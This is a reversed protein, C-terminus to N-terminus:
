QYSVVPRHTLLIQRRAAKLYILFLVGERETLRKMEDGIAFGIIHSHRKWIKRGVLCDVGTKTIYETQVNPSGDLDPGAEEFYLDDQLM